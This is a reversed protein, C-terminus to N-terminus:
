GQKNEDVALPVIPDHGAEVDELTGVKEAAYDIIFDDAMFTQWDDNRGGDFKAYVKGADAEPHPKLLVTKNKLETIEGVYTARTLEM